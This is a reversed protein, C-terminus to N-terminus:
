ISRSGGKELKTSLPHDTETFNIIQDAEQEGIKVKAISGDHLTYQEEFVLGSDIFTTKNSLYWDDAQTHTNWGNQTSEQQLMVCPAVEEPWM